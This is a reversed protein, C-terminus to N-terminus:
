LLKRVISSRRARALLDSQDDNECHNREDIQALHLPCLTRNGYIEIRHGLYPCGLARCPGVPDPGDVPDHDSINETPIDM